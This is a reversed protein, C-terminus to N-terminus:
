RGRPLNVSYRHDVAVISRELRLAEHRSLAGHRVAVTIDRSLRQQAADLQSREFRSLRGDRLSQARLRELQAAQAHVRAAERHRQAAQQPGHTAVQTQVAQGHHFKQADVGQAFAGACALTLAAAILSRTQTM